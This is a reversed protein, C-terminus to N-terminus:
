QLSKLHKEYEEFQEPSLNSIEEDSMNGFDLKAKTGKSKSTTSAEDARTTEDEKEKLFNIYESKVAERYSVGKAKAYARVESKLNDSLDTSALDRENLKEDLMKELDGVPQQQAPQVPLPKEVEKSSSKIAKLEEEAKKARAFLKKNSDALKVLKEEDPEDEQTNGTLSDLTEEEPKLSDQLEKENEM